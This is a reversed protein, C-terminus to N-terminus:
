ELGDRGLIKELLEDLEPSDPFLELGLRAVWVGEKYKGVELLTYVINLFQEPGFGKAYVKADKFVKQSHVAVWIPIIAVQLADKRVSKRGHLQLQWKQYADHCRM